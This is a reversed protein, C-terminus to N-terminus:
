KQAIVLAVIQRFFLRDNQWFPRMGTNRKGEIDQKLDVYFKYELEPATSKLDIWTQFELPFDRSDSRVISLNLQRFLQKLEYLNFLKRHSPDRLRELRDYELAWHSNGPAVRDVVITRGGKRCVRKMEALVIEPRAFHHLGFRTMVLDFSEDAYPLNEALGPQVSMNTIGSKRAAKVGRTLQTRQRDLAIAHRVLPAIARTLQGTGAAVELCRFHPQLALPRVIWELDDVHTVTLQPRDCRNSKSSFEREVSDDTNM